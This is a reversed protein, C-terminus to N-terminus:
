APPLMGAFRGFPAQEWDPFYVAGHVIVEPIPRLSQEGRWYKESNAPWDPENADLWIADAIFAVSGVVVRARLINRNEHSFWKAIITHAVEESAVLFMAGLRSPLRLDVKKRTEDWLLEKPNERGHASYPTVADALDMASVTRVFGKGLFVNHYLHTGESPAVHYFVQPHLEITRGDHEIANTLIVEMRSVAMGSIRSVSQTNLTNSLSLENAIV